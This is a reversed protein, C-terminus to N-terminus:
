LACEITENAPKEMFDPGVDRKLVIAQQGIIVVPYNTVPDRTLVLDHKVDLEATPEGGMQAREPQKHKGQMAEHKLVIEENILTGDCVFKWMCEVM